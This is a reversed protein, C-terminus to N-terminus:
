NFFGIRSPQSFNMWIFFARGVINEKPVFGWFRSDLSNDRNDGMMFYSDAPVVCRIGERSYQCNEYGPFRWIPRIESMTHTDQLIKNEVVGLNEIYQATYSV